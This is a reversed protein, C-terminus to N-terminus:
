KGGAGALEKLRALRKAENAVFDADKSLIEYAQVFYPRAEDPKKQVLLLEGLEEFVFGDKEKISEFEALLARQMTLAEDIRGLSRLARAVAWKAIRTEVPQKREQRWALGKQFLELAKAYDGKDHYTWGMNNYLAGLWGQVRPDKSAEAVAMAKLNWEIGKDGPEVIGMMHAADCALVDEGAARAIDWAQVFLPRAKEVQKSSNFARGRELLYRIRAVKLDDRLMGEVRDLTKHADDFKGQLGQARAVQTLLQALYSPDNAGEAKPLLERFKAESAAPDDYNWLRDFDPLGDARANTAWLACLCVAAAPLLSRIITDMM